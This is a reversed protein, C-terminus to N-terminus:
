LLTEIQPKLDSPRSMPSRRRVVNGRRDVLFKTFNWKIAQSGLIGKAQGKLWQYLPHAEPGNVAIKGFLPFRVHYVDRCFVAIEAADGPEQRGFQKGPFGLGAFGRPSQAEPHQTLGKYQPTVGCRSATNVVLLVQDRFRALPIEDGSIDRATFDYITTM